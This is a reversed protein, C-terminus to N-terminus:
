SRTTIAGATAVGLGLSVLIIGMVFAIVFGVVIAAIFYSAVGAGLSVNNAVSVATGSVYLSWLFGIIAVIFILGISGGLALGGTASGAAGAAVGGLIFVGVITVVISVVLGVITSSGLLGVTTDNDATGKGISAAIAAAVIGTLVLGVAGFVLVVIQNVVYSGTGLAGGFAAMTAAMSVILGLVTLILYVLVGDKMSTDGKISEFASKPSTLVQPLVGLNLSM